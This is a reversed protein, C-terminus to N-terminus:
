NLPATTDVEPTLDKQYDKDYDKMMKYRNFDNGYGRMMNYYRDGFGSRMQGYQVGFCFIIIAIIIWFIVRVIGHSKCCGSRMDIGSKKKCCEGGACADTKNINKEEEM